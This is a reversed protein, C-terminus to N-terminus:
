NSIKAADLAEGAVQFEDWPYETKGLCMSKEHSKGLLTVTDGPKALQGIAFNIAERRDPIRYFVPATSKKDNEDPSLESAGSKLCGRAIQDIIKNVDETRPDEATLISIDALKGSIEGMMARKLKDRLGASGFLAILRGQGKGELRLTKLANELSNPTSAFDVFVKFKQGLKIEEMRGKVGPFTILAQKIKEPAIGLSDTVAIAALCNYRNYEGLLKTEFPFTKPTYDAKEKLSYTKIETSRGSITNTLGQYSRDDRNLIALKAHTFLRSKAKLYNEYNKHYDLHDHTINTVVGIRFNVGFLRNQALGHSSSELVLYKSGSDKINKILKQLSWSDPTTVHLGTTSEETGIKIAVTSILAAKQGSQALIYHILSATTTKGDTGTVGIVTLGKSPFGFYLNALFAKPLHFIFNVWGDPILSRAIKFM